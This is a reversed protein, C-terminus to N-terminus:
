SKVVIFLCTFWGLVTMVIVTTVTEAAIGILKGIETHTETGILSEIIEIPKMDIGVATM